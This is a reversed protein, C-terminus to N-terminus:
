EWRPVEVVHEGSIHIRQGNVIAQGQGHALVRWQKPEPGAGQPVIRFRNVQERVIVGESLLWYDKNAALSTFDRYRDYEAEMAEVSDFYGVIYSAAFRDGPNVPLGGIEQILCVYGRQHCWAESVTKPDLTMGTLWPMGKGPIKHARIMRPPLPHLGRQYFHRSDPAFDEFFDSAPIYGEYSLYIQEFTDGRNHKIHGPMDIRLFVEEVQNASQVCDSSIFYRRGMPFIITQVWLSGPTYGPAAQTWRWSQSVAVFDRGLFFESDIHGAQTCIQPLEVFHKPIYGHIKDGYKYPLGGRAGPGMLFDVIDLGFSSDLAGTRRDVFTNAKIGSVYGSPWIEASLCDTKILIRHDKGRAVRFLDKSLVHSEDKANEKPSSAINQGAQQPAGFMTAGMLMAWNHMNGPTNNQFYKRIKEIGKKASPTEDTRIAKASPAKTRTTPPPPRETPTGEYPGPPAPPATEGCAALALIAYATGSHTIYHQSDKEMSRTFWRGSARQHTKLWQIGRRIRPDAAPIGVTRLTYIVFGTGYGDSTEYDQPTGNSRRWSTGLTALNWGGDPKQLALLDDVVQKREADTMIGDVHLSALMKMARHHVNKPPNNRFYSRIKELGEKAVPTQAYDDPAMGVGLAAMTVGYHDDIESPPENNKMWTWGGDERQFDWIRDLAFRTAPHLKGTTAADNQALVSAVMVAETAQYGTKRPHMALYEAAERIQKHAPVEHTVAPRAMLFVYNSHCAFCKRQKQWTLAASDLFRLGQQMSFEDIFPEDPRNRGPPVVNELTVPENAFLHGVALLVLMGIAFLRKRIFNMSKEMNRIQKADRSLCPLQHM